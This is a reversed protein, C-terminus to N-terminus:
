HLLAKMTVILVGILGAGVADLAARLGRHAGSALGWLALTFLM